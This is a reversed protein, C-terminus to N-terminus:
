MQYRKTRRRSRQALGVEREDIMHEIDNVPMPPAPNARTILLARKTENSVKMYMDPLYSFTLGRNNEDTIGHRKKFDELDLRIDKYNVVYVLSRINKNRAFMDMVAMRVDEGQGDCFSYIVSTRQAFSRMTDDNLLNGHVPVFPKVNSKSPYDQQMRKALALALNHMMANYEVGICKCGSAISLQVCANGNASGADMVVDTETIGAAICITEFSAPTLTGSIGTEDGGEAVSGVVRANDLRTQEALMDRAGKSLRREGHVRKVVHGGVRDVEDKMTESLTMDVGSAPRLEDHSVGFLPQEARQIHLAAKRMPVFRMNNETLPACLCGAQPITSM